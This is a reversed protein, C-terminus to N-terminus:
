PSVLAMAAHSLLTSQAAVSATPQSLVEMRARALLERAEDATQISAERVGRTQSPGEVQGLAAELREEFVGVKELRDQVSEMAHRVSDSLGGASLPDIVDTPVFGPMLTQPRADMLSLHVEVSDYGAGLQFTLARQAGNLLPIGNFKAASSAEALERELQRTKELLMQREAGSLDEDQAEHAILLLEQLRTQVSLLGQEVIQSVTSASAVSHNMQRTQAMESRQREIPSPRGVIRMQESTTPTKHQASQRADFRLESLQSTLPGTTPVTSQIRFMAREKNTGALADVTPHDGPGGCDLWGFEKTQGRPRMRRVKTDSAHKPM